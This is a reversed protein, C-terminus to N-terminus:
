LRREKNVNKTPLQCDPVLDALAYLEEDSIVAVWPELERLIYGKLVQSERAEDANLAKRQNKDVLQRYRTVQPEIESIRMGLEGCEAVRSKIRHLPDRGDYRETVSGRRRLHTLTCRIVRKIM